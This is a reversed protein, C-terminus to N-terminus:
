LNLIAYLLHVIEAFMALFVIVGIAYFVIVGSERIGGARVRQIMSYAPGLIFWLFIGVASVGVITGLLPFHSAMTGPPTSTTTTTAGTGIQAYASSVGSREIAENSNVVGSFGVMPHGTLATALVISTFILVSFSLCLLSIILIKNYDKRKKLTAEMNIGQRSENLEGNSNNYLRRMLNRRVM